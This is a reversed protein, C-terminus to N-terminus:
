MNNILHFNPDWIIHILNSSLPDFYDISIVKKVSKSLTRSLRLPIWTAKSCPTEFMCGPPWNCSGSNYKAAGVQFWLKSNQNSIKKSIEKSYKFFWGWGFAVELLERTFQPQSGQRLSMVLDCLEFRMSDNWGTETSLGIFCFWNEDELVIFM